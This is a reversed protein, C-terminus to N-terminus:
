GKSFTYGHICISQVNTTCNWRKGMGRQTCEYSNVHGIKTLKMLMPSKLRLRCSHKHYILSRVIYRWSKQSRVDHWSFKHTVDSTSLLMRQLLLWCSLVLAFIVWMLARWTLKQQRSQVTDSHPLVPWNSVWRHVLAVKSRWRLRLTAVSLCCASSEKCWFCSVHKSTTFECRSAAKGQM